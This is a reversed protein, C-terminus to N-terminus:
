QDYVMGKIGLMEEFMNCTNRCEGQKCFFQFLRAMIPQFCKKEMELFHNWAEGIKEQM